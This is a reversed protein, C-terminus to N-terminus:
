PAKGRPFCQSRRRHLPSIPRKTLCPNFTCAQREARCRLGPVVRTRENGATSLRIHQFCVPFGSGLMVEVFPQNGAAHDVWLYWMSTREGGTIQGAIFLM